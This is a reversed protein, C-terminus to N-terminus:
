TGHLCILAVPATMLIGDLMDLMGGFEPLLAASDKQDAWRKLGSAALDGLFTAAGILAGIIAAFAPPGQLEPSFLAATGAAGLIGALTGEWTKKPSVAPAIRARGVLSGVFYACIDCIKSIAVVVYATRVSEIMIRDLFSLLGATYAVAVGFLVAEPFAVAASRVPAM